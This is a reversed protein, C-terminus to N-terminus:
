SDSTHTQRRDDDAASAAIRPAVAIMEPRRSASAPKAASISRTASREQERDDPRDPVLLQELPEPDEPAGAGVVHHLRADAPRELVDPQELVHGRDLVDEDPHVRLDAAVQRLRQEDRRPHALLLLVGLLPGLLQQREDPQPALAVLSAM